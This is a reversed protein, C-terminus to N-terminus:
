EQIERGVRFYPASLELTTGSPGSRIDIRGGVGAAQERISRLGIGSTLSAPAALLKAADFGAGNDRVSLVLRGGRIELAAEVRTAQAHQALNSFAEQAARYAVIKLQLGPERPLPEIRLSADFRQPIGSLEWLQRLAEGITLCQWEPPHLRYSLARVQSLAERALASIRELAQEVTPPANPLQPTISDVQLRIAALLQGVGTHLDRGLRRREMEVQHVARGRGGGQRARRVLRALRREAKELRFYRRLLDHQLPLLSEIQVLAFRARDNLWTARGLSREFIIPYFVGSIEPRPGAPYTM